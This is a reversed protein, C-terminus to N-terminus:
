KKYRKVLTGERKMFTTTCEDDGSIHYLCVGNDELVAYRSRREEPINLHELATLFDSKCDVDMISRIGFDIKSLIHERFAQDKHRDCDYLYFVEYTVEVLLNCIKQRKIPWGSLYIVTDGIDYTSDKRFSMMGEIQCIVSMLTSENLTIGDDELAKLISGSMCVRGTCIQKVKDATNEYQEIYEKVNKCTM